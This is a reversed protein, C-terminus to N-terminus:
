RSPHNRFFGWIVETAVFDQCTKGILEEKAYQVGGPWTHGGGFVKILSVDHKKGYWTTRTAKCGDGTFRDVIEEEKADDLCRGASRWLEMAKDTHLVAGRNKGVMGGAFPVLPDNMGQIALVSTATASRMASEHQVPIGGCIPAIATLLGPRKMALYHCFIAGNSIGTAYIQKRNVGRERSVQELIVDIFAPDDIGQKHAESVHAERGDNWNGAIGDPYIVIFSELEAVRHFGTLSAMQAGSGGGGHFALVVPLGTTPTTDPLYISYSRTRNGMRFQRLELSANAAMALCMGICLAAIRM